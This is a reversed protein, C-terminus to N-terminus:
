RKRHKQLYEKKTVTDSSYRVEWVDFYEEYILNQGHHGRNPEFAPAIGIIRPKYQLPEIEITVSDGPKQSARRLKEYRQAMQQEYGIAEGSFLDYFARKFHQAFLLCLILSGIAVLQNPQFSLFREPQPLKRTLYSILIQLNLFWSTLFAFYIVNFVRPPYSEQDLGLSWYYPFSGLLVVGIFLAFAVLPHLYFGKRLLTNKQALYFGTPIYLVSFLFLLPSYLTWHWLSLLGNYMSTNLSTLFHGFDKEVPNERFSFILGPATMNIASAGIASVFLLLMVWKDGSKQWFSVVTLIGTFLLLLPIFLENCGIIAIILVMSGLTLLLKRGNSPHLSLKVLFAILFLTLIVPTMYVYSSPMYYFSNWVNPMEFLYLCVFALTGLLLYRKDLLRNTMSEIAFWTSVFFLTFFLFALLKYGMYSDFVLPNFAYLLNVFYRGDFTTHQVYIYELPGGDKHVGQTIAFDQVDPYVFASLSFFILFCFGLILGVWKNLSFAQLHPHGKSKSQRILLLTAIIVFSALYFSSDARDYFYPELNNKLYELIDAM